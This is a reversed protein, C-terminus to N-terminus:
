SSLAITIEDKAESSIISNGINIPYEQSLIIGTGFIKSTHFKMFYNNLLDEMYYKASEPNFIAEQKKISNEVSSINVATKIALMDLYIRNSDSRLLPKLTVAINTISKWLETKSNSLNVNVNVNIGKVTIRTEVPNLDFTLNSPIINFILSLNANDHQMLLDPMVRAMSRLDARFFSLKPIM